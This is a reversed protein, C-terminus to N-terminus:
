ESVEPGDDREGPDFHVDTEEEEAREMNLLAQAKKSQEWAEKERLAKLEENRAKKKPICPTCTPSRGRKDEKFYRYPLKLGCTDCVQQEGDDGKLMTRQKAAARRKQEKRREVAEKGCQICRVGHIGPEECESPDKEQKCVRCIWKVLVDTTM